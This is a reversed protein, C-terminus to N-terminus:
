SYALVRRWYTRKPTPSRVSISNKSPGCLMWPTPVKANRCRRRPQGTWYALNALGPRTCANVVHGSNLGQQARLGPDGRRPISERGRHPACADCPALQVAGAVASQLGVTVVVWDDPVFVATVTADAYMDLSLTTQTGIENGQGDKWHVFRSGADAM